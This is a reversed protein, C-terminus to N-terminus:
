GGMRAVWEGFASMFDRLYRRTAEDILRGDADFKEVARGVLLEPAPMVSVNLCALVQRLHLQARATGISSVSAGLIAAPKGDWANAKMPQSAWDIANKLVGSISYNYEPTVLLIAEAGRVRERLETARAPPNDEDDGNYMPVGALDFTEIRMGGPALEAAARLLSRNYSANRLSGAIGLVTLMM